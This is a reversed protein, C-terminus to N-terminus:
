GGFALSFEHRDGGKNYAADGREQEIMKEAARECMRAMYDPAYDSINVAGIAYIELLELSAGNQIFGCLFEDGDIFVTRVVDADPMKKATLRARQAAITKAAQEMLGCAKQNEEVQFRLSAELAEIRATLQQAYLSQLMDSKEIERLVPQVPFSPPPVIARPTLRFEPRLM